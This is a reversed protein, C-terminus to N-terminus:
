KKKTKSCFWRTKEVFQKENNNMNIAKRGEQGGDDFIM